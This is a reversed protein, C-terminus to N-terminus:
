GNVTSARVEAGVDRVSVGGNVTAARVRINRPVGVTFTVTTRNRRNGDNDEQNFGNISCHGNEHWVACISVDGGEQVVQFTVEDVSGGNNEHKEATVHVMNDSSPVVNVRGNVNHVGMWHGADVRGDWHWTELNRGDGQAAALAPLGVLAALAALKGFKNLM